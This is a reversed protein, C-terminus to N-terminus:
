VRLSDSSIGCLAALASAPIVWYGSEILQHHASPDAYIMRAFRARVPGIDSVDAITANAFDSLNPTDILVYINARDPQGTQNALLAAPAAVLAFALPCLTLLLFRMM